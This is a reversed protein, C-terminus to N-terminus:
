ASGQQKSLIKNVGATFVNDYSFKQRVQSAQLSLKQKEAEPLHYFAELAKSLGQVGGGYFFGNEGEILYEAAAELRDNAIVPVSCALAELAVLGFSETESISPFVFVSFSGMIDPLKERAIAGLFTVRDNLGLDKVLAELYQRQSGDGAITLRADSINISAFAEILEHCNKMPELRSVFGINFVTKELAAAKEGSGFFGEGVCDPYVKIVQEIPLKLESSVKNRYYESPVAYLDVDSKVFNFFGTFIRSKTLRKLDSGHFRMIIYHKKRVLKALCLVPLFYVPYHIEILTGAPNKFLSLSCRVLLQAYLAVKNLASKPKEKIAVLTVNESGLTKRWAQETSRVFTGYFPASQTPYMNTWILLRKM